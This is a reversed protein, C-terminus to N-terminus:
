SLMQLRYAAYGAAKLSFVYFRLCPNFYFTSPYPLTIM